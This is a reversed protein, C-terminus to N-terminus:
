NSSTTRLNSAFPYTGAGAKGEGRGSAPSTSARLAAPPPFRDAFELMEYAAVGGGWGEVAFLPLPLLSM